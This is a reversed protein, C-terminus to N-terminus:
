AVGDGRGGDATRLLNVPGRAQIGDKAVTAVFARGVTAGIADVRKDGLEDLL